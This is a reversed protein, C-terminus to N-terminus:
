FEIGHGQAPNLVWNMFFGWRWQARWVQVGLLLAVALSAARTMFGVAILMGGAIQVVGALVAMPFAPTINASAFTAATATLGGPGVGAGAFAGFLVHAGHAALVMAVTLRMVLLGLGPM